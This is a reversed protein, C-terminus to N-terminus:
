SLKTGVKVFSKGLNRFVDSLGGAQITNDSVTMSKKGHCVSCFGSLLKSAKSTQDGYFNKTSYRHRSGVCFAESEIKHFRM